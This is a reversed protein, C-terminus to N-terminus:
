ISTFDGARRAKAVGLMYAELATETSPMYAAGLAMNVCGSKDDETVFIVRRNQAAAELVRAACEEATIAGSPAGGAADWIPTAVTGPVITSFRIGEDWYEYRLSNTMSLLAAKTAAYMSQYPLNVFAIGSATNLIHGGKAKQMYPLAARIGYLAGHFNIAFAKAWDENGLNGFAGSLGLGANNFLLELRGGGLAAASDVMAKVSEERTVDTKVGQVRGPYQQNLRDAHKALNAENIDALTVARAGNALMAEVLALGIGSAGGTVAAVKDRYYHSTESM